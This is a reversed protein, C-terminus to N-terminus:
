NKRTVGLRDIIDDVSEHHLIIDISTLQFEKDDFAQEYKDQAHKVLGLLIESKDNKIRREDTYPDLFFRSISFDNYIARQKELM